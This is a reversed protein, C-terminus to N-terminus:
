KSERELVFNFTADPPTIVRRPDFWHDTKNYKDDPFYLQTVLKKCGPATVIVHIHSCRYDDPQGAESIKYDSPIITTFSYEGQPNAKTKGRHRYRPSDNDYDGHKDAHWVDLLAYPVPKGDTGMVYGRVGLDPNDSLVSREPAGERYFPGLIDPPTPVLGKYRQYDSHM